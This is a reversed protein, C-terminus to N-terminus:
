RRFVVKGDFITMDVKTEIIGAPDIEYINKDLVIMDARKGASISGLEHEMEFFRAPLVTYARVAAELSVRHEPYWGGEPTGDARKRTVAGYIGVMPNPDTVPCDSSFMTPVGADMLAKFPYAWKGREGLSEDIMNMDLIMNSPQVSVPIKLHSLRKMDDPHMMQAHEIHHSLIPRTFAPTKLQANAKELAEYIGIVERNARDGIAHIMVSLGARDAKIVYGKLEEIDYMPMGYEADLYPEIMWATRAGMGGDSFYKIHGIRLRDDGFGTRLGLDILEDLGDGHFTVWCRLDLRGMENLMQWASFVRTTNADKKLKVDEIGTIGLEHLAKIGEDFLGALEHDPPDTIIGRVLSIANERLIGTPRGKEDRDIVGEAPDPTKEDIGAADLALSNLAALHMDCRWIATPHTPAAKDLDERTPMRNEPWEAENWGQGIIWNDPATKREAWEMKAMLEPFNKIRALKVQRRAIAWDYFHFHTDLIGPIVLRGKLDITETERGALPKIEKDDGVALIRGRGIAAAEAVPHKPDQTRIQGNVLILDVSKNM